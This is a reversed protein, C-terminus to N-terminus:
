ENEQNMLLEGFQAREFEQIYIRSKDPNAFVFAKNVSELYNQIKDNTASIVAQYGLSRILRICSGVKEGDMQSFAEDLVVLRPTARRRVGAKLNMRYVQAFSALLAVYLPNQGEGGSNKSLMRSLKAPAMGEVLQEMDFSLYTRYDAYREMNRRAEELERESANEPPIFYEILEQILEGHRSEHEMTFLNMQNEMRGMLQNPNIELAEDMFLDYFRGDAGRNKTVIFRYRDKGFDMRSLIRNMDDKQQLAEKIASRIKYIFDNKFQEVAIRALEGSREVFEPLRNESLDSLLQAYEDNKKNRIDLERFSFQKQHAERAGLLKEYRQEYQERATELRQTIIKRIRDMSNGFLEKSLEEYREKLEPRESFEKSKEQLQLEKEVVAKQEKELSSEALMKKGTATNARLNNAKVAEDLFIKRAKWEEVNQQKLEALQKELKAKEAERAPIALTDAQQGLILDFDQQLSEMALKEDLFERLDKLPALESLQRNLRKKLAALKRQMSKKGIYAWESYNRPNIHQLKYGQYLVCDATIGSRNKRLEDIDDCKILGGMLYDVYAQVHPLDCEIEEALSGKKHPKADALVKETDIVAVQHYRGADLQQYAEMAAKAYAPEVILTLKNNGMFGEVANQWSEDAVEILDALVEVPVQKGVRISLEEELRQKAELLYPPYSKRGNELEEIQGRLDKIEKQVKRLDATNEDRQEQLDARVRDITEKIQKLGAKSAGYSQVQQIVPVLTKPMGPMLHPCIYGQLGKAMKDFAGRSVYCRELTENVHRLSSEVTDYGSDRLRGVLEDREEQMAASEQELHALETTLAEVEQQLTASKEISQSIETKLATIEVANQAYQYLDKDQVTQDYQGYAQEVRELMQIEERTEELKRKLRVYQTVSDQMEEIRIDKEMCIYSGVFDELKMDMRFPIAKKFLAIFKDPNLGGFYRDYLERRFRNNTSSAFSDEDSFTRLFAKIESMTACRKGTRYHNEPLTGKHAFFLRNIENNDVNVDFVVGVCFTDGTEAHRFELVINSSFNQNRLYGIEDNDRVTKMGRLYEMLSRDSDEKAAKNFFNKGNSDAYLVLQMADIITSKGSGSHGTFFNIEQNFSLVKENIYHWNNLCMRDLTLFNMDAM